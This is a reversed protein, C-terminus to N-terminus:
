GTGPTTGFGCPGEGRAQTGANQVGQHGPATETQFKYAITQCGQTDTTPQASAGTVPGGLVAVGVVASLAVVRKM